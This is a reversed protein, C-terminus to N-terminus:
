KPKLSRLVHRRYLVISYLRTHVQCNNYTHIEALHITPMCFIASFTMIKLKLHFVSKMLDLLIWVCVTIILVSQQSISFCYIYM